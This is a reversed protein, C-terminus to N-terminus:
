SDKGFTINITRFNEEFLIADEPVKFYRISRIANLLSQDFAKDGNSEVLEVEEVEGTSALKIRVTALYPRSAQLKNWNLGVEAKIAAGYTDVVDMRDQRRAHAEKQRQTLADFAAQQELERQLEEELLKQDQALEDNIQAFENNLEALERADQEAKLEELEKLRQKEDEIKKKQAEERKKKEADLRKQESIKQDAIKKAEAQRKAEAEKKAAELKKLEAEKRQQELKKQAELKKADDNPKIPEPKKEVPKNQVPKIPAAPPSFEMLNIATYEPIKFKKPDNKFEIVGFLLSGFIAIHGVVAVIVAVGYENLFETISEKSPLM